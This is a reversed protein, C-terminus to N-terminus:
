NSFSILVLLAMLLTIGTQSSMEYGEKLLPQWTLAVCPDASFKMPQSLLLQAVAIFSPM